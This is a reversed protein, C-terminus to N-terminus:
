LAKMKGVVPLHRNHVYNLNFVVIKFVETEKAFIVALCLNRLVQRSTPTNGFNENYVPRGWSVEASKSVRTAPKKSFVEKSRIPTARFASAALDSM